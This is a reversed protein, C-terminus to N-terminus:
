ECPNVKEEPSPNQSKVAQILSPTEGTMVPRLIRNNDYTPSFIM